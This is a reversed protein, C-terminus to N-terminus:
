VMEKEERRSNYLVFFYINFIRMGLDLPHKTSICLQLKFLITYIISTITTDHSTFKLARCQQIMQTLMLSSKEIFIIWCRKRECVDSSWNGEGYKEKKRGKRVIYEWECRFARNWRREKWRKMRIWWVYLNEREKSRFGYLQILRHTAVTEIFIWFVM